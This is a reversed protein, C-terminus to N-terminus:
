CTLTRARLTCVPFCASECAHLVGCVWQCLWVTVLVDGMAHHAAIHEIGFEEALAGLRYARLGPWVVRFLKLTCGFRWGDVVEPPAPKANSHRSNFDMLHLWAALEQRLMRTDFAANHALLVPVQHEPTHACVFDVARRWVESFGDAGKVQHIRPM